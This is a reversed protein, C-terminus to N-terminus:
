KSSYSSRSGHSSYSRRQAPRGHSQNSQNSRRRKSLGGNIKPTRTMKASMKSLKSDQELNEFLQKKNKEKSINTSSKGAVRLLAPNQGATPNNYNLSTPPYTPDLQFSQAMPQGYQLSPDNRQKENLEPNQARAISSATQVIPVPQRKRGFPNASQARKSNFGRSNHSSSSPRRNSRNNVWEQQSLRSWYKHDGRNRSWEAAWGGTDRDRMKRDIM